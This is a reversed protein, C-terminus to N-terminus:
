RLFGHLARAFEEPAEVFPFHGCDKLIVLRSGSLAHHIQELAARPVMDHDGGVILARCQVQRLGELLNYSKLSADRYLYNVMKMRKSYDAPFQLTLSDAENRHAFVPRFLLRFFRAMAAPSSEKFGPSAVIRAMELSDKTSRNRKMISFSSDRMASTAPTPTVLILTSLHEPHALAYRMALLGGWSHGLLNIRGLHLARRVGEIDEVFTNVNMSSSDVDVSSKGSARQDFFILRYHQALLRMQPLFYTHDLGPGGHVILLPTGSGLIRYYLKTGNVALSGSQQKTAQHKERPGALGAPGPGVLLLFLISLTLRNPM